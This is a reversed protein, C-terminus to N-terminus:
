APEARSQRDAAELEEATAFELRRVLGDKYLTVHAQPM